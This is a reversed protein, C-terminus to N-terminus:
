KGKKSHHSLKINKIRDSTYTITAYVLADIIYITPKIILLLIVVSILSLILYM